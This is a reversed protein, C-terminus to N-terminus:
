SLDGEEVPVDENCDPCGGIPHWGEEEKLDGLVTDLLNVAVITHHQRIKSRIRELDKILQATTM